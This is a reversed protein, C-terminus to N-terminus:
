AADPKHFYLNFSVGILEPTPRTPAGSDQVLYLEGRPLLTSKYRSILGYNAVAKVGTLIPAGDATAIDLAFSEARVNWVLRLRYPNGDLEISLSQDAAGTLLPIKQTSM